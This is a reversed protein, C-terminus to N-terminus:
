AKNNIIAEVFGKTIEKPRTIATGVVVALAGQELAINVQSYTQYRGEALVPIQSQISLNQVLDIDPEKIQNSYPTYGSLTTAVLDAGAREAELGEELTSVDALVLCKTEKHIADIYSCLDGAPSVRNTADIAIVDAGAEAIQKAHKLTPTIYVPYNDINEKYLGIIPLNVAQKIAYVDSPTNARIAKAGGEAAAIAMKSMIDPGYMPEDPLAQCSVILQKNVQHVFDQLSNRRNYKTM